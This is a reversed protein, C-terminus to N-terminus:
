RPKFELAMLGLPLAVPVGVEGDGSIGECGGVRWTERWSRPSLFLCLVVDVIGPRSEALFGSPHLLGKGGVWAAVPCFLMEEREDERASGVIRSGASRRERGFCGRGWAGSWCQALCSENGLREKRIPKEGSGGWLWLRAPLCPTEVGLAGSSQGLSLGRCLDPWDGKKSLAM